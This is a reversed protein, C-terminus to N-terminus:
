RDGIKTQLFAKLKKFAKASESTKKLKWGSKTKTIIDCTELHKLLNNKQYSESFGYIKDIDQITITIDENHLFFDVITVIDTHNFFWHFANKARPKHPAM